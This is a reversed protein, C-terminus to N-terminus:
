GVHTLNLCHVLFYWVTGTCGLPDTCACNPEVDVRISSSTSAYTVYTTGDAGICGTDFVLTAGNWVTIRDKITYTQYDFAFTASNSGMSYRRSVPTDAGAVQQGDCQTCTTSCPSMQLSCVDGCALNTTVSVSSTIQNTNIVLRAQYTIYLCADIPKVSPLQCINSPTVIAIRIVRSGDTLILLTTVGPSTQNPGNADPLPVVFLLDNSGATGFHLAVGTYSNLTARLTRLKVVSNSIPRKKPLLEAPVHFYLYQARGAEFISSSNDTGGFQNLISENFPILPSVSSTETFSSLSRQYSGNPYISINAFPAASFSDFLSLTTTAVNNDNNNNSSPSRLVGSAGLAILAVGAVVTFSAVSIVSWLICFSVGPHM